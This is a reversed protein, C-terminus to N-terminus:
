MITHASGSPRDFHSAPAPAAPAQAPLTLAPERAAPASAPPAAQAISPVCLRVEVRAGIAVLAAEFSRAVELSVGHKVVLPFSKLMTRAAQPEIRFVRVLAKEPPEPANLRFGLIAVDHLQM